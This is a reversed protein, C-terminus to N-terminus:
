GRTADSPKMTEPNRPDGTFMMTPCEIDGSWVAKLTWQENTNDDDMMSNAQDLSYVELSSQAQPHVYDEQATGTDGWVQFGIVADRVNKQVVTLCSNLECDDCYNDNIEESAIDVFLNNVNPRVWAKTQVNDSGCFDCVHVNEFEPNDKLYQEDLYADIAMAHDYVDTCYSYHKVTRDQNFTAYDNPSLELHEMISDQIRKKIAVIHDPDDIVKEAYDLPVPKDNDGYPTDSEIRMEFLLVSMAIAFEIQTKFM